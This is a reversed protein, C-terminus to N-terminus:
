QVYKKALRIWIPSSKLVDSLNETNAFYYIDGEIALLPVGHNELYQSIKKKFGIKNNIKKSNLIFM